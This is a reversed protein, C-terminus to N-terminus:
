GNSDFCNERVQRPQLSYTLLPVEGKSGFIDQTFSFFYIRTNLLPWKAKVGSFLM